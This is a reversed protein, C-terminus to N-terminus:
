GGINHFQDIHNMTGCKPKNEIALQIAKRAGFERVNYGNEDFLCPKIYGDSTLRIRNCINCDGGEGGEVKWYKGKTLDMKRIFRCEFGHKECFAKVEIADKESSNQEVVCNIKVPHLGAKKAAFIGNLAQNLDGGRTLRKYKDPDLTDLSINVRNLGAKKIEVAYKDLYIANTTMALDNIGNVDAIMKVLEVINKRVLPEGGTIRVKNVGLKVAENVVDLIENFRLIDEHTMLKIGEAPMCYECRLNCRDTVSIRLYHINRNFRDLM